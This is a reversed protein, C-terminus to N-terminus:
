FEGGNSGAGGLAKAAWMGALGWMGVRWGRWLGEVGQGKRDAKKAKKGRGVVIDPTSSGGEERAISWMTGIVGSYPGVEVITELRKSDESQYAPSALVAM